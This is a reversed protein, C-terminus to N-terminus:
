IKNLQERILTIKQELSTFEDDLIFSVDLNRENAENVLENIYIMNQMHQDNSYGRTNNNYGNNVSHRNSSKNKFMAIFINILFFWFLLSVIVSLFSNAGFFLNGILLMGLLGGGTRFLSSRSNTRKSAQNSFNNKKNLKNLSNTNRSRVLSSSRHSSYRRADLQQQDFNFLPLMLTLILLVKLFKNM